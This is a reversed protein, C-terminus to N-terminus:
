VQCGLITPPIKKRSPISPETLMNHDYCGGDGSVTKHDSERFDYCEVGDAAAEQTNQM